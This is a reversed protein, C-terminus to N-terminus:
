VSYAVSRQWLCAKERHERLRTKGRLPKKAVGQVHLPGSGQTFWRSNEWSVPKAAFRVCLHGRGSINPEITLWRISIGRTVCVLPRVCKGRYTSGHSDQASRCEALREELYRSERGTHKYPYCKKKCVPCHTVAQTGWWIHEWATKQASSNGM